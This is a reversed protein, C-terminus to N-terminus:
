SPIFSLSSSFKTPPSRANKAVWRTRGKEERGLRRSRGTREREERGRGERIERIERNIRRRIPSPVGCAV